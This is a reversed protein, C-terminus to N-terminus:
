WHRSTNIASKPADPWGAGQDIWRRLTEIEEAALPPGAAPMRRLGNLGLVRQILVSANSDGPVIVRSASLKNDLQLNSESYTESHCGYCRGSLIPAVKSYFDVAGAQPAPLSAARLPVLLAVAAILALKTRM